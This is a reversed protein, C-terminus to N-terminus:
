ALDLVHVVTSRVQANEHRLTNLLPNISESKMDKLAMLAFQNKKRGILYTLLGSVAPVGINALAKSASLAVEERVDELMTLLANLSRKDDLEGLAIVVAKRVVWNSSNLLNILPPVARVDKLLGLTTAAYRKTITNPIELADIM